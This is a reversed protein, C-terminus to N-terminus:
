TIRRPMARKIAEQQAHVADDVIAGQHKRVTPWFWWGAAGGLKNGASVFHASRKRVGIVQLAM